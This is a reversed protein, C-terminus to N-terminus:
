VNEVALFKLQNEFWGWDMKRTDMTWKKEREKKNWKHHRISINQPSFTIKIFDVATKNFYHYIIATKEGGLSSLTIDFQNNAMKCEETRHYAISDEGILNLLISLYKPIESEGIRRDLKKSMNM